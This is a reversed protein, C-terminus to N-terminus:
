PITMSLVTGATSLTIVVDESYTGDLTATITTVASGEAFRLYIRVQRKMLGNWTGPM